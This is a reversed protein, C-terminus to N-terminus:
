EAPQLAPRAHQFLHRVSGRGNFLLGIFNFREVCFDHLVVVVLIVGALLIFFEVLPPLNVLILLTGGLYVLGHHFLFMTQSRAVWKARWISPQNFYRHFFQLGAFVSVWCVINQAYLMATEQWFVGDTEPYPQVAFGGFVAIMMWWRFKFVAHQLMQSTQLLLGFAFYPLSQALKYPSQLGPILPDYGGPSKAAVGTLTLNILALVIILATLGWWKEVVVGARNALSTCINFLWNRKPLLAAFLITASVFVVLSVLFWLHLSWRDTQWVSAFAPSELYDLFPLNGGLDRYRLFLEAVNFTLAVAVMPLVLRKIRERAVYALPRQAIMRATVFGSIVFFSPTVFLHLGNVLWSFIDLRDQNATIHVRNTAYVTSVHLIVALLMLSARFADIDELRSSPRYTPGPYFDGNDLNPHPKQATV